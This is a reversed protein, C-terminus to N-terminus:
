FSHAANVESRRHTLKFHSVRQSPLLNQCVQQQSSTWYHHLQNFHYHLFSHYLNFSATVTIHTHTFTVQQMENQINKHILIIQVYAKVSIFFKFETKCLNKSQKPPTTSLIDLFHVTIIWKCQLNTLFRQQSHVISCINVSIFKLKFPNYYHYITM